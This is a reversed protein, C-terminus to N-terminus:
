SDLFARITAAKAERAVRARKSGPVLGAADELYAALPDADAAMVLTLTRVLPLREATPHSFAARYALHYSARAKLIDVVLDDRAEIPPIASATLRHAPDTRYYPFHVTLDRVFGWVAALHGGYEDLVIPPAYNAFLDAKLTAPFLPIGDLVLRRLRGPHAIALEVGIQAGTHDGYFDITELSLADLIHVVSEAYYAIDTSPISPPDSDGNGLMDPAVVRRDTGLEAILPELGRSCGPGAHAIYLPPPGGETNAPNASRYHIRGFPTELFGRDPRSVM